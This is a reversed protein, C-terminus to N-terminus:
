VSSYDTGDATHHPLHWWPSQAMLGRSGSYTPGNSGFFGMFNLGGLSCSGGRGLPTPLIAKTTTGTSRRSATGYKMNRSYMRGLSNPMLSTFIPTLRPM